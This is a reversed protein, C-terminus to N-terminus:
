DQWSMNDWRNPWNPGDHHDRRRHHNDSWHGFTGFGLSISVQADNRGRFRRNDDRDYDDDFASLYRCSVWGDPGGKIVLCWGGSQDRIEVADGVRLQDLIRYDTGPGSRVNVSGNAEAELAMAGTVSLGIAVASIAAVKALSIVKM